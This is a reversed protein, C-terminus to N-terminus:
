FSNALQVLEMPNDDLNAAKIGRKYVYENYLTKPHDMSDLATESSHINTEEYFDQYMSFRKFMAKFSNMTDLEAETYFEREEEKKSFNLSDRTKLLSDLSINNKEEIEKIKEPKVDKAVKLAKTEIQGNSNFGDSMKDFDLFFGNLIFFIISVSLYFRFPNAYKARQGNIYDKSIKGPKFLLAMITHRLRSDYSFISAFFEDFFDKLSLRKTTNVQGCNHCYRDVVDLPVGCNLCEDGRYKKLFRGQDKM